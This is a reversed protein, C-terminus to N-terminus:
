EKHKNHKHDEKNKNKNQENNKKEKKEGIGKDDVDKYPINKMTKKVNSETESKTKKKTEKIKEEAKKQQGKSQKKAKEQKVENENKHNKTKIEQKPNIKVKPKKEYNSKNQKTEEKEKDFSSNIKKEEHRNEKKEEKLQKEKFVGTTVGQKHAATRDKKTGQVVTLHINEKKVKEEIQEINAELKKEVKIEKKDDYVTSIIVEDHNQFYGQEKIEEIINSTVLSVEQHKWNKLESIIQKGENNYAEMKLVELDDNVALEISPNVDISMYAYVEDSNNFTIFSAAAVIVACAAAPLAKGPLFNFFSSKKKEIDSVPFFDIEQGILYDQKQKRAKLFEGEPTLLTLFREDVNM